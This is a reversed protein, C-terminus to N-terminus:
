DNKEGNDGIACVPCGDMAERCQAEEEPTSPQRYVYAHGSEDMRFISPAVSTCFDSAICSEDVYFKGTANERWKMSKEAVLRM